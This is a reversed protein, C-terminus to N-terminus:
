RFFPCQLIYHYEDGVLNMTCKTCLREEYPINSEAIGRVVVPIKLNRCRFKFMNIRDRNDLVTQYKELKLEPKFSRYLIYSSKRAMESQWEQKYTDSLKIQISKKLWEHKVTKPNLWVNRMGCNNLIREIHKIWPSKFQNQELLNSLLYLVRYSLKTNLGTATKHWFCIMRTNIIIELPVKGTEGYVMCNPTQSTAKLTYKLFKRFFVEIPEVKEFGWVESGYLLIPLIM